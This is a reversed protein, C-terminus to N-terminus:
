APYRAAGHQVCILDFRDAKAPDRDMRVPLGMLKRSDPNPEDFWRSNIVVYRMEEACFVKDHADWGCCFALRELRQRGCQDFAEFIGKLVDGSIDIPIATEVPRRTARDMMIHSADWTETESAEQAKIMEVGLLAMKSSHEISKDTM